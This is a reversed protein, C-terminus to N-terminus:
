INSVQEQLIRFLNLKLDDSLAQENIAYEFETKIETNERISDFLTSAMEYLNINQLPTVLSQCLKRIELISSDILEMPYNILEAFAKNKKAAVSLYMKTGALIQNINDHLERAFHNRQQEQAKIIARTINKQAKKKQTIDHLITLYQYPKGREDFFPVVTSEVWYLSGDKTRNRLEGRWEKGSSITEWFERWYDQSHYGSNIIRQNQGLLEDANYRSLRCFNDNVYIIIGDKDTIAVSSSADLAYKYDNLEKLVRRRRIASEIALPLRTLRDKLIYDDAGQKIISAAFEDSVTGTVLIFPIHFYNTRVFKLAEESSYSPLQNDSLIIAPSFSELQQEFDKRNDVVKIVFNNLSKLTRRVLEADSQDDELVLIKLGKMTYDRSASHDM